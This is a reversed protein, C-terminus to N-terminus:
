TLVMQENSQNSIAEQVVEGPSLEVCVDLTAQSWMYDYTCAHVIATAIAMSLLAVVHGRNDICSGVASQGM